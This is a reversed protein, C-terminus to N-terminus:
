GESKLQQAFLRCGFPKGILDSIANCTDCGRGSWQHPDKQLLDFSESQAQLESDLAKIREAQWELANTLQNIHAMYAIPEQERNRAHESNWRDSKYILDKIAKDSM